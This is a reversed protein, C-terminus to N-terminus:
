IPGTLPHRDQGICARIVAQPTARKPSVWHLPALVLLIGSVTIGPSSRRSLAFSRALHLEVAEGAAAVGGVGRVVLDHREAHHRRARDLLGLPRDRDARSSPTGTVAARRRCRRLGPWVTLWESMMSQEFCRLRIEIEIDGPARQTTSGPMTSSSRLRWSLGCPRHNGTSTEVATARWWRRCPRRVVGAARARQAVAVRALVHERDVRHEGVAALRMEPRHRRSRDSRGSSNAAALRQRAVQEREARALGVLDGRAKGLHLAPDAAVVDVRQHGAAVVDVERMDQDARLARQRERGRDLQLQRRQEAPARDAGAVEAAEVLRHVAACCMTLSPGMATSSTSRVIISSARSMAMNRGVSSANTRPSGSPAAAPRTRRPRGPRSRAGGRAGRRASPRDRSRSSGVAAGLPAAHDLHEIGLQLGRDGLHAGGAEVDHHRHLLLSLRDGEDLVARHRELMEGVVGRPEGVDELLVAGRPVQYACAETPQRCTRGTSLRRSSFSTLAIRAM